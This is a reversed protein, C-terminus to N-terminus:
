LALNTKVDGVTWGNANTVPQVLKSRMAEIADPEVLNLQDLVSVALLNLGRYTGDYMRIAFGIEREPVAVCLLGEAGLKAVVKGNALRMLECDLEGKGSINEPNRAMANRLRVIASEYARVSKSASKGPAALAVYSRAFDSVKAGFTPLSCGDAALAISDADVQMAEAVITRIQVQLPHEPSLYSDTPYGLHLCTALMGTHKGSCCNQLPSPADLGLSVRGLEAADLPPAAGCQLLDTSAGIKELMAVVAEQQYAQAHHSSCCFALEAETFGFADAAGSEVLPIAQFPKASSRFYAFRNPDGAAAVLRGGGDVVAVAAQHESEIADGRTYWVYLPITEAM